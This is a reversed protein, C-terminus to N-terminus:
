VSRQTGSAAESLADLMYWIVTMMNHFRVELSELRQGHNSLQEIYAGVNRYMAYVLFALVINVALSVRLSVPVADSLRKWM